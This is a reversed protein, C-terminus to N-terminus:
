KKKAGRKGRGPYDRAKKEAAKLLGSDPNERPLRYVNISSAAGPNWFAAREQEARVISPSISEPAVGMVTSFRQLAPANLPIKGNIYQNLASQGFGFLHAVDLQASPEGREDLEAQWRKFAAKLRVSDDKQEATLEKAPVRM